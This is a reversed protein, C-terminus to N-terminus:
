GSRLSSAAEDLRSLGILAEGKRIRVLALNRSSIKPTRSELAEFAALAERLKNSDLLSTAQDFQQQVSPQQAFAPCPTSLTAAAAVAAIGIRLNMVLRGGGHNM